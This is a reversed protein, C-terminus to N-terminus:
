GFQIIIIILFETIFFAQESVRPAVVPDALISVLLGLCLEDHVKRDDFAKNLVQHSEEETLGRILHM